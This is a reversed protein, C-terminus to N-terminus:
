ETIITDQASFAVFFKLFFLPWKKALASLGGISGYIRGNDVRTEGILGVMSLIARM